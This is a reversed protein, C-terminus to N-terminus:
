GLDGLAGCAILRGLEQQLDFELDAQDAAEEAAGIATALTEGAVLASVFAGGGPALGTADVDLQPRTILVHSVTDDVGAADLADLSEVHWLDLVPWDAALLRAAPHMRFRIAPLDDAPITALNNPDLVPADPAMWSEHLLWELRLLDPLWPADDRVDEIAEVFDAFESGYLDLVPRAPPKHRVHSVALASFNGDGLLRRAAPFTAELAEVLSVVYHGAYIGIRASAPIADASVFAAAADPDGSTLSELFASEMDRLM